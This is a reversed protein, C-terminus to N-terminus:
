GRCMASGHNGRGSRRGLAVCHQAAQPVSWKLPRAGSPAAPSCRCDASAVCASTILRGPWMGLWERWLLNCRQPDGCSVRTCRDSESDQRRRCHLCNWLHHRPKLDIRCSCHIWCMRQDTMIGPACRQTFQLSSCSPSQQYPGCQSSPM